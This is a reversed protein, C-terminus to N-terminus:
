NYPQIGYVFALMHSAEKASVLYLGAFFDIVGGGKFLCGKAFCRFRNTNVNISFSKEKGCKPCAGRSEGDKNAESLFIDLDRVINPVTLFTRIVGFDVYKGELDLHLRLEAPDLNVM